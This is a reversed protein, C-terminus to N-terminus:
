MKYAKLFLLRMHPFVDSSPLSDIERRNIVRDHEEIENRTRAKRANCYAVFLNFEHFYKEAKREGKKANVSFHIDTATASPPLSHLFCLFDKRLRLLFVVSLFVKPFLLLVGGVRDDWCGVDVVNVCTLLNIRFSVCSFLESLSGGSTHITFKLRSINNCVYEISM